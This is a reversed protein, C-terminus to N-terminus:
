EKTSLAKRRAIMIIDLIDDKSLLDPYKDEIEQITYDLM